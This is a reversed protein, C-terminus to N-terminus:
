KFALCKDRKKIAAFLKNCSYSSFISHLFLASNYFIIIICSLTKNTKYHNAHKMVPEELDRLTKQVRDEFSSPVEGFIDESWPRM